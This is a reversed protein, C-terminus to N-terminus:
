VRFVVLGGGCRPPWLDVEEDQLCSDSSADKWGEGFDLHEM